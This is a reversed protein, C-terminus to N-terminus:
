ILARMVQARLFTTFVLNSYFPSRLLSKFFFTYFINEVQMDMNQVSRISKRLNIFNLVQVM